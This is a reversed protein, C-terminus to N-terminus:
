EVLIKKVLGPGQYILGTYIQILTAGLDLRRKADDRNMIGGVSVIPIRGDVRKVIQCLVAESRLRLPSGSLGGSEGRHGSNLGERSVTTNTAIIGDIGMDLIVGIADDLEQESLDPALKVLLPIRKQLSAEEMKRQIHLQKLLDELFTRGQLQRLGVTNPSSINIALYDAYPAFCQLLELYDLVAEENPTDKNKGLNVGIITNFRNFRSTKLRELHKTVFPSGKGPFGMRNIVAEDELLRFVRPRANGPQPQPTVTGVEVHGFGLASLGKIAVADKDYGAALGIPNKFTLGFARVPRAPAKYIQTLFWNSFPFNGALRITQLTLKHATEPDLRFLLSRFFRYM